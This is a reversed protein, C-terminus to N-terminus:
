VEKIINKEHNLLWIKRELGGAYGGMGGHHNIVRHCPILIAINNSANAQAVARFATPKGIKRAVDLYSQTTGCAISVLAGWVCVQFNSGLMKLPTQFNVCHGSFYDALENILQATVPTDGVVFPNEFYKSLRLLQIEINKQDVFGLFYLYENDSLAIMKGLKTDFETKVLM